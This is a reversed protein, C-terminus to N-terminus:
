APPTATTVFIIIFVATAAAVVLPALSLRSRQASGETQQSGGWFYDGLSAGLWSMSLSGILVMVVTIPLNTIPQFSYFQKFFTLLVLGMGVASAVGAEVWVGRRYAYWLDILLFSPLVVVWANVFMMKEVGFLRILAFRIALAVVGSITAAGVTRLTHNAMVGIFSAGGVLLVPLLWEPRDLVFDAAADWEVMFFQNWILSITAFMLLPLLDPLRLQLPTGWERRPQTATHFATALLLILVFSTVVLLHPVGWATLDVGNISHWIPDAPLVYLLFGGMLILLGLVPNARFREQLTGKGWRRIIYIGAVALGIAVGFGFYMLLHPRWFFDDGFPIGFQRHWVEDWFTGVVIGFGGVGLLLGIAQRFNARLPEVRVNKGAPLPRFLLHWTVVGFATMVVLLLATGIWFPLAREGTPVGSWFGFVVFFALAAAAVIVIKLRDRTPTKLPNEIINHQRM